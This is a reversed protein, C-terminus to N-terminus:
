KSSSRTNDQNKNKGALNQQTIQAARHGKGKILNWKM